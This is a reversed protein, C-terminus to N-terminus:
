NRITNIKKWLLSMSLTPLIASITLVPYIWYGKLSPPWFNTLLILSMLVISISIFVANIYKKYIACDRCIYVIMGTTFAGLLLVHLYLIRIGQDSMWLEPPSISAVIQMVAKIALFSLPWAWFLKLAKDKKVSSYIFTLISIGIMIGGLRTAFLLQANIFSASIGYSFTLPAGFAILAVLINPSVLYDARKVELRKAIFGLLSLVIWGETFTSLFFHTLAKLLLPEGLHLLGSLGVSWAGLSSVFLMVLASEYWINRKDAPTGARHILYGAMFIYWGIMVFGSLIASVPIGAGGILVTKYGWLFFSVFSLLGFGIIIWFSLEILRKSLVSYQGSIIETYIFYLPLFSAWGFFMLHSHAHRINILDWGAPLAIVFGLRYLFGTLGAIVFCLFAWQWFVSGKDRLNNM